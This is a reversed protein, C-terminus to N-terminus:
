AGNHECELDDLLRELKEKRRRVRSIKLDGSSSERKRWKKVAQKFRSKGHKMQLEYLEEEAEEPDDLGDLLQEQEERRALEQVAELFSVDQVDTINVCEPTIGLAAAVSLQFKARAAEGLETGMDFDSAMAPLFHIQGTTVTTHNENATPWRRVSGDALVPVAGEGDPLGSLDKGMDVLDKLDMKISQQPTLEEDSDADSAQDEARAAQAEARAEAAERRQKHLRVSAKVAM